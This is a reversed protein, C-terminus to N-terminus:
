SRVVIFHFWFLSKNSAVNLIYICISFSIVKISIELVYYKSFSFM